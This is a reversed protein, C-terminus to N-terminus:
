MGFFIYCAIAAVSIVVLKVKNFVSQERWYFLFSAKKRSWYAIQNNKLQRCFPPVARGLRYLGYFVFSAIIYFVIVQTEHLDTEFLHEILKDLNLEVFEFALHLSELFHEFLFHLLEFFLGFVADPAVIVTMVAALIFARVWIQQSRKKNVYKALLEQDANAMNIFHAGVFYPYQTENPDSNRCYVVKGYTVIAEMSSVLLIRIALYDGEKLSHECNFAMGSASINVDRTQNSDFHLGSTMEDPLIKELKPLKLARDQPVREIDTSWSPINLIDDITPQPETLLTEDIKQYFLNVEDYIRFFVRRNNNKTMNVKDM